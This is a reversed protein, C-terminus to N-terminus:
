TGVGRSALQRLTDQKGVAGAFEPKVKAVMRKGKDEKRAEPRPGSDGELAIREERVKAVTSTNNYVGVQVRGGNWALAKEEDRMKGFRGEYKNTENIFNKLIDDFQEM